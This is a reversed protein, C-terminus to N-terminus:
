TNDGAEIKPGELLLRHVRAHHPVILRAKSALHSRQHLLEHQRIGADLRVQHEADGVGLDKAIPFINDAQVLELISLWDLVGSYQSRERM